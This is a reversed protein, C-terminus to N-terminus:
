EGNWLEHALCDQIIQKAKEATIVENRCYHDRCWNLYRYTGDSEKRVCSYGIGDSEIVFSNKPGDFIPRKETVRKTIQNKRLNISLKTEAAM